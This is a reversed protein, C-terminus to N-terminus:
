EFLAHILLRAVEGQQQIPGDVLSAHQIRRQEGAQLPEIVPEARAGVGDGLFAHRTQLLDVRPNHQNPFLDSAGTFAVSQHGREGANRHRNAGRITVGYQQSILSIMCDGRDMRSPAARRGMDDSARQFFHVPEVAGCRRVDVRCDSRANTAATVFYAHVYRTLEARFFGPPDIQGSDVAALQQVGADRILADIDKATAGPAVSVQEM